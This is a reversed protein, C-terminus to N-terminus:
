ILSRSKIGRGSSIRTAIPGAYDIGCHLFARLPATVRPSPLQGMLQAPIAAEERAYTVCRHIVSKVISRARLIWFEQRITALTLQVGAHLSRLHANQIILKM